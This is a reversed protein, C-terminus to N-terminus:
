KGAGGQLGDLGDLGDAVPNILAFLHVAESSGVHGIRRLRGSIIGAGVRRILTRVGQSM